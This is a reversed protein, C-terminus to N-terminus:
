WLGLLVFTLKISATPLLLFVAGLLATILSPLLDEFQGGAKRVGWIYVAGDVLLFFGFIRIMLSVSGSPWFLGILGLILFVAGRLLYTSRLDSLRAGFADDISRGFNQRPKSPDQDKDTM